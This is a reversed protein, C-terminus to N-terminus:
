IPLEQNRHARLSRLVGGLIVCPGAVLPFLSIARMYLLVAITPQVALACGVVVCKALPARREFRSVGYGILLSSAMLSMIRTGTDSVAGAMVLDRWAAYVIGINDPVVGYWMVVLTPIALNFLQSVVDGILTLGVIRAVDFGDLGM